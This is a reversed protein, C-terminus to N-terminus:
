LPNSGASIVIMFSSLSVGPTVIKAAVFGRMVVSLAPLAVNVALSRVLGVALTVKIPIRLELVEAPVTEGAFIVKVAVFQLTGCVIVIVPTFL